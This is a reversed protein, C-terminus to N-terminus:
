KLSETGEPENLLHAQHWDTGTAVICALGEPTTLIVTFTGTKESAWVEVVSQTSQSAQLGGGAFSESYHSKLREVVMERKACNAAYAPMSAAILGFSLGTGLLHKYM